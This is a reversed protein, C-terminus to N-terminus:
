SRLEVPLQMALCHLSGHQEIIARCDLGIVERDPFVPRLTDLAANDQPLDYTPVLVAGNLILFNAYTAPLRHGDAAYVPDPWPLPVLRYPQGNLQRFTRLEERMRKLEAFHSDAPDDCHVYAITDPACFRALTDIHADTDDGELFGNQLYLIRTAGLERQLMAELEAFSRGENRNPATLCHLTTLITGAGDSEISGGELVWGPTRREAAGFYGREHLARTVQNDHHAAFKLGWGNFTFDLLVPRGDEIVTIPGYDRAWTDNTTIPIPTIPHNTLGFSVPDVEGATLLLVPQFRAATKAIRAIAAFANAYHPGWDGDRRPLTLLLASQPHYEPPLM